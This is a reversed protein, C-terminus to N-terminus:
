NGKQTFYLDILANPAPFATIIRTRTHRFTSVVVLIRGRDTRGVSAIREEGDVPEVDFDLPDNEIVEEAEQPSVGHRAIHNRNADDWDFVLDTSM